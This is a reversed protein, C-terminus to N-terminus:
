MLWKFQSICVKFLSQVEIAQSSCLELIFVVFCDTVTSIRDELRSCEQALLLLGKWATAAPEWSEGSLSGLPLRLSPITGEYKVNKSVVLRASQITDLHSRRRVAMKCDYRYAYLPDTSGYLYYTTSYSCGVWKRGVKDKRLDGELKGWGVM